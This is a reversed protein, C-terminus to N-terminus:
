LKIVKVEGGTCSDRTMAYEVAEKASKGFDLAALAFDSGSGCSETYTLKSPMIRVGEYCVWYVEGKNIWLGHCDVDSETNNPFMALAHQIEAANGCFIFAGKENNIMKEDCDTVIIGGRTIRSDYAIERAKHDYVITTM